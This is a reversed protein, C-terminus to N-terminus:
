FRCIHIIVQNNDKTAGYVFPFKKNHSQKCFTLLFVVVYTIETIRTLTLCTVIPKGKFTRKNTLELILFTVSCFSENTAVTKLQRGLIQLFGLYPLFLQM